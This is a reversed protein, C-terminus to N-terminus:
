VLLFKWAEKKTLFFHIGSACEHVPDPDWADAVVEEGVKYHEMGWFCSYAEDYTTGNFDMISEVYVREARCKSRKYVVKPTNINILLTALAFVRKENEGNKAAVIKYGYFKDPGHLFMGRVAVGCVEQSLGCTNFSAYVGMYDPTTEEVKYSDIVRYKAEYLPGIRIFSDVIVLDFLCNVFTTNTFDNLSTPLKIGSMKCNVFVTDHIGSKSFDHGSFDDNAFVTLDDM